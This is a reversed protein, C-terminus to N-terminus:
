NVIAENYEKNEIYKKNTITQTKCIFNQFHRILTILGVQYLILYNNILIKEKKLAKNYIVRSKTDIICLKHM